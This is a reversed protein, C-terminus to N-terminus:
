RRELLEYAMSESYWAPFAEAPNMWIRRGQRVKSEWGVALLQGAKVTWPPEPGKPRAAASAEQQYDRLSRVEGM